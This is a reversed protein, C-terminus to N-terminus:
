QQECHEGLAFPQVYTAAFNCWGSNLSLGAVAVSHGLLRDPSLAAACWTRPWRYGHYVGCGIHTHRDDLIRASGTWFAHATRGFGMTQGNLKRLRSTLRVSNQHHERFHFRSRLRRTKPDTRQPRRGSTRGDDSRERRRRGSSMASKMGDGIEFAM